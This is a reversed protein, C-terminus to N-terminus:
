TCSWLFIKALDLFVGYNCVHAIDELKLYRDNGDNRSRGNKFFSQTLRRRVADFQTTKEEFFLFLVIFNEM